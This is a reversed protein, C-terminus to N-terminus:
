NSVFLGLRLFQVNFDVRMHRPRPRAHVRMRALM